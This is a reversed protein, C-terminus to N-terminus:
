LNGSPKLVRLNKLRALNSLNLAPEHEAVDLYEGDETTLHNKCILYLDVCENPGNPIRLVVGHNAAGKALLTSLKFNISEGKNLNLELSYLSGKGVAKKMFGSVVTKFLFSTKNPNRPDPSSEMEFPEAQDSSKALASFTDPGSFLAQWVRFQPNRNQSKLLDHLFHAFEGDKVLLNGSKPLRIRWSSSNPNGSVREGPLFLVYNASPTLIAPGKLRSPLQGVGGKASGDPSDISDRGGRDPTVGSSESDPEFPAASSQVPTDQGSEAPPDDTSFPNLFWFLCLLALFAMGLLLPKTRKSSLVAAPSRAVSTPKRDRSRSSPLRVPEATRKKVRKGSTVSVMRGSEDVPARLFDPEDRVAMAQEVLDQGEAKDRSDPGLLNDMSRYVKKRYTADPMKFKLIAQLDGMRLELGPPLETEELYVALFKKKRNLALNVENRCNESAASRPSTFM